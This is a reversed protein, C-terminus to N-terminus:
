RTGPSSTSTLWFFRSRRSTLCPRSPTWCIWPRDISSRCRFIDTSWILYAVWGVPFPLSLTFFPLTSTLLTLSPLAFTNCPFTSYLSTNCSFTDLALVPFLHFTICLIIYHLLLYNFLSHYHLSLCHLSLYLLSLYHISLCLLSLYHLSLYHLSFCLSTICPFM